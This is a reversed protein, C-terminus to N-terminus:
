YHQSWGNMPSWLPAQRRNWLRAVLVTNIFPCQFQLSSDKAFQTKPSKNSSACRRFILKCRVQGHTYQVQHELGLGAMNCQSEPIKGLLLCGEPEMMFLLKSSNLKCTTSQRDSMQTHVRISPLWTPGPMCFIRHHGVQCGKDQIGGFMKYHRSLSQQMIQMSDKKDQVSVNRHHIMWSPQRFKQFYEIQSQSLAIMDCLSNNINGEKLGGQILLEFQLSWVVAGILNQPFQM